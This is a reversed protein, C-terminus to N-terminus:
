GPATGDGHVDLDIDQEDQKALGWRFFLGDRNGEGFPAKM